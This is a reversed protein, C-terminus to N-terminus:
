CRKYASIFASGCLLLVTVYIEIVKLNKEQQKETCTAPLRDERKEQFLASSQRRTDGEQKFVAPKGLIFFPLNM